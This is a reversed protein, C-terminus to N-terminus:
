FITQNRPQPPEAKKPRMRKSPHITRTTTTSPTATPTETVTEAAPQVLRVQAPKSEPAKFAQAASVGGVIGLAAVAALVPAVVKSNM